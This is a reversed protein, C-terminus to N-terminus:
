TSPDYTVPEDGPLDDTDAYIDRLPVTCGLASLELVADDGELLTLLWQGSELRRFHEVQRRRQAVLVYEVFSPLTRYHAFKAGHDYDETSKSLVEVIVVPNVLADNYKAHFRAGCAVSADAYTNLGTVESRIRQDSNWVRCPSGAARLRVSLERAINFAIANHKPKAGSMAYIEGNILESKSEARRELEVYEDETYLHQPAAQM